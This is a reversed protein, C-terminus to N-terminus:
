LIRFGWLIKPLLQKRHVRGKPEGSEEIGQIRRVVHPGLVLAGKALPHHQVPSDLLSSAREDVDSLPLNTPKM